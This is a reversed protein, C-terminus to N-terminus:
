PKGGGNSNLARIAQRAIRRSRDDLNAEIIANECDRIANERAEGLEKQLREILAVADSVAKDLDKLRDRVDIADYLEPSPFLSRLREVVDDELVPNTM